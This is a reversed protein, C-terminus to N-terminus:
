YGDVQDGCVVSLSGEHSERDALEHCVTGYIENDLHHGLEHGFHKLDETVVITGTMHEYVGGCTDGAHGTAYACGFGVDGDVDTIIEVVFTDIYKNPKMHACKLVARYKSDLVEIDPEFGNSAIAIGLETYQDPEPSSCGVILLLIPIFIRM